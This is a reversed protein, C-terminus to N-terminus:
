MSIKDVGMYERLVEPVTVSGDENQYNELIAAVTRGVALGSGNLTHVLKAKDKKDDKFRIMSRRAQYDEFNSCSSIEVYRGYSPMWVEIDYTKASSFGLDGTCLCVVRYPIELLQLLSEADNTLKELEDYSEEPRAFKVLEVKNFQHQRILGRTDRGASGAESRFCASYACYKKTLDKGDLIEDRHYNTVPVEATPILYFDTGEVKFGNDFKPLQGTGYLSATNAMFPPFIETYGNKTHTNLFFNIVSRELKAGLGKYFHFRTGTVKAARESDLIGLAKGIEWHPKAEFEFTRPTDWRRIEINESDDLGIPVDKNPMNPISLLIERQKEELKTLEDNEKSIKDSLIKMEGMIASIDKGAKKLEPIKKSTANQESKMSEVSAILERRKTDIELIKDIQEDMNKGRSAVSKKVLDPNERIIKIDLMSMVEKWDNLIIIKLNM